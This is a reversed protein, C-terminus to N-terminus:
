RGFVGSLRRMAEEVTKRPCALNLRVCGSGGRGFWQGLDGAVKAKEVVSRCIEEESLGTGSFDLWLFYTGETVSAQVGPLNERVYTEAYKLNASIYATLQDVYADGRRFAAEMAAPGFVNPGFFGGASLRQQFKRRIEADPIIIASTKLGALNFTKSASICCIMGEETVTGASTHKRGDMILDSHIEDSVLIVQNRRCIEAMHELEERTWVRGVPNHPSCLIFLKTDAEAAKEELDDFDIEYRGQATRILPNEVAKRQNRLICNERFPYYVPPQILVGDGERTLAQVATCIADVVGPTLVIWERRIKWGHRREMWERVADLVHTGPAAPYGFVSAEAKARIVATIEEPVPFDMDAVWMPLAGEADLGPFFREFGDWKLSETHKRPIVTDFDYTKM